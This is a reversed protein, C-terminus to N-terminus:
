DENGDEKSRLLEDFINLQNYTLLAEWELTKLLNAYAYATCDAAILLKAGDHRRV